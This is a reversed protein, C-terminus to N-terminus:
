VCHWSYTTIGGRGGTRGRDGQGERGERGALASAGLKYL